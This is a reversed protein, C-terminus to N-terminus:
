VTQLVQLSIIKTTPCSEILVYLQCIIRVISNDEVNWYGLLWQIIIFFLSSEKWKTMLSIFVNQM